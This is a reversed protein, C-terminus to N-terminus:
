YKKQTVRKKERISIYYNKNYGNMELPFDHINFVILKLDPRDGVYFFFDLFDSETNFFGKVRSRTMKFLDCANFYSYCCHIQTTM